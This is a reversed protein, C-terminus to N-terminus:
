IFVSLENAIKELFEKDEEKFADIEDSDIDIEGIIKSDKIIPVVIESKTSVFCALYRNDAKVDPIVEIKGSAAASGCIGKGIPIKTHETAHKGKWLGLILDDGEVIYIGVWSYKDFNEYLFEVVNRLVLSPEVGSIIDIIKQEAQSYDLIIV